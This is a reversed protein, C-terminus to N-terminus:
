YVFNSSQLSLRPLKAVDACACGFSKLKRTQTHQVKRKLNYHRTLARLSERDFAFILWFYFNTPISHARAAAIKYLMYIRTANIQRTDNKNRCVPRARAAASLVFIM